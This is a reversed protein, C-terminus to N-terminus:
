TDLGHLQIEPPVETPSGVSRIPCGQVSICCDCTDSERSRRLVGVMRLGLWPNPKLNADVILYFMASNQNKECLVGTERGGTRHWIVLHDAVRGPCVGSAKPVLGPITLRFWVMLIWFWTFLSFEQRILFCSWLVYWRNIVPTSCSRQFPCAEFAGCCITSTWCPQLSLTSDVLHEVPFSHHHIM